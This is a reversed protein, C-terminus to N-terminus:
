DELTEIFGQKELFKIRKPDVNRKTAPFETYEGDVTYHRGKRHGDTKLKDESDYFGKLVKRKTRKKAM